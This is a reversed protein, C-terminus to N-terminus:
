LNLQEQLERDRREKEKKDKMYKERKRQEEKAQERVLKAQQEDHRVTTAIFTLLGGGRLDILHSITKGDAQAHIPRFPAVLPHNAKFLGLKEVTPQGILVDFLDSDVVLCTSTVFKALSYEPAGPINEKFKACHWRIQITGMSNMKHGQISQGFVGQAQDFKVGPFQNLFDSSILNQHCQTDILLVASRKIEKGEVMIAVTTLPEFQLTSKRQSTPKIRRWIRKLLVRGKATTARIPTWLRSIVQTPLNAVSQPTEFSM